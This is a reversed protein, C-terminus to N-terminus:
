SNINSARKEVCKIYLGDTFGIPRGLFYMGIKVVEWWRWWWWRLGLWNWGKGLEGCHDALRGTAWFGGIPERWIFFTIWVRQWPSWVGCKRAEYTGRWGWRDSDQVCLGEQEVQVQAMSCTDDVLNEHLNNGWNVWTNTSIDDWWSSDERIYKYGSFGM